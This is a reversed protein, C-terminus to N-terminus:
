LMCVNVCRPFACDAALYISPPFFHTIFVVAHQQTDKTDMTEDDAATRRNEFARIKLVYVPCSMSEDFLYRCFINLGVSM